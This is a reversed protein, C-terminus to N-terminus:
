HEYSRIATEVGAHRSFLFDVGFIVSRLNWRVISPIGARGQFDSLRIQKGGGILCTLFLPRLPHLRPVVGSSGGNMEM